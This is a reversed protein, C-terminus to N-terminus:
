NKASNSVLELQNSDPYKIRHHHIGILVKMFSDKIRTLDRLTLDCEDFEGEMFRSRIVERIKSELKQPTPDEIARTCAEISDALMVIGTEKTQPKPGPYRYILDSIEEKSSNKAKDYFYSVLTTGHHMPIFDIIEQPLKYKKALEIGDKVHAIIIKTSVNPNLENHKNNEDLQNEIFYMPKSIKGIDHYYCGVRALIQNAGIAEAAAESLNGMIISHHFTGPAKSSLEKLLPHNFDSLELLTLDTTIKFVKEYFILLGFAIVPSMVANIGGFMLKMWLKQYDEIRILNIALISFTYGILIFLFSRFIQSRNKIDRESFIALVSGCFSIFSISYDGGRIAAVLFCIITVTYFALRSDFIITLLISAVPVFILLEIPLKLDINMSLFAIFGVILIMSSIIMLKFNNIFVDKRIYYLFLILILMLIFVTFFKGVYQLILDQMGIKELRVKKYSDLKMKTFRNVPDHKSIIRENERVIGITKPIQEIRSQTEKETLVNNYLLNEPTLKGTIKVASSVLLSDGFKSRFKNEFDNLLENKDIIKDLDTLEQLKEDKLQVTIKKSTIKNKDINIIDKDANNQIEKSLYNYFENFSLNNDTNQNSHLSYLKEWEPFTFDIKVNQKLADLKESNIYGDKNNVLEDAKRFINQFQYKLDELSDKLKYNNDTKDFVMAINRIVDKKEQEYESEDKYVPFSFPAILDESSWIAGVEYKSEINKYSPIMIFLLTVTIILVCLKVFNSKKYNIKKIKGFINGINKFNSQNM